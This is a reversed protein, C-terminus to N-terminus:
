GEKVLRQQIENTVTDIDNNITNHARTRQQSTMFEANDVAADLEKLRDKVDRQFGAPLATNDLSNRIGQIRAKLSAGHGTFSALQSSSVGAQKAKAEEARGRLATIGRYILPLLIPAATRLAGAYRTITGANLKGAKIKELEQKAMKYEHKRRKKLGKEESKILAKEQKALLKEQKALLKQQHHTAKEAAKVQSKARTKAAKLEAKAAARSRRFNKLISM